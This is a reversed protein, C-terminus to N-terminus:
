SSICCTKVLNLHLLRWLFVSCVRVGNTGGLVVCLTERPLGGLLDRDLPELGTPILNKLMAQSDTFIHDLDDFGLIDEEEFEVRRIGDVVGQMVDPTELKNQKWKERISWLGVAMKVQQIFAKLHKKFYIEDHTDESLVDQYTQLLATQEDPAFESIYQRVQAESPRTQYKELSKVICDFIIKLQIVNFINLKAAENDLALYRALQTAFHDNQLAIKLIGRQFTIDFNPMPLNLDSM